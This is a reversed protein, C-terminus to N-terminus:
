GTLRGVYFSTVIRAVGKSCGPGDKGHGGAQAGHFCLRVRIAIARSLHRRGANRPIVKRGARMRRVRRGAFAPVAGSM